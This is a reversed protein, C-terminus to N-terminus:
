HGEGIVVNLTDRSLQKMAKRPVYLQRVRTYPNYFNNLPVIFFFCRHKHTVTVYSYYYVTCVLRVILGIYHIM